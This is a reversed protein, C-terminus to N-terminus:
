EQWRSKSLVSLTRPLWSCSYQKKQCRTLHLLELWEMATWYFEFRKHLFAWLGWVGTEWCWHWKGNRHNCCSRWCVLPLLCFNNLCTLELRFQKHERRRKPQRTGRCYNSGPQFVSLPCLRHLNLWKVLTLGVQDCTRNFKLQCYDDKSGSRKRRRGEWQGSAVELTERVPQFNLGDKCITVAPFDLENVPKSITKLSTITRDDQRDM